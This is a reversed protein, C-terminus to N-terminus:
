PKAHTAFFNWLIDNMAIGTTSDFAPNYPAQGAVNMPVTYWAHQGGILRYFKVEVGGRCGTADKENLSSINGQADCLPAASNSTTCSNSSTQTWYNFTIEQSALGPGSCYPIVTDNDGHFILVSVPAAAAPVGQLNGGFGFLSGEVIGVAAVVDPMEIGIRYAMLAGNSFGAFYIKKPDPHIEAQITAVLQRLFAVDDPPPSAWIGADFYNHWESGAQPSAILAYPYAVAFGAQDAKQSMQSYGAIQAGSGGSGHLVVVLGSSNAQFNAPVHILYARPTGGVTLTRCSPDGTIAFCPSPSNASSGAGGSGCSGALLLTAAAACCSVFIRCGVAWRGRSIGIM